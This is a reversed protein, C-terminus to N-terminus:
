MAWQMGGISFQICLYLMKKFSALFNTFFLRAVENLNDKPHIYTGAAHSIGLAQM